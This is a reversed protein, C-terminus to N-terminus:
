HFIIIMRASALLLLLLTDIEFIDFQLFQLVSADWEKTLISVHIFICWMRLANTDSAAAFLPDCIYFKELNKQQQQQQIHTYVM